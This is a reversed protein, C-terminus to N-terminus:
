DDLLPSVIPLSSPLMGGEIDFSNDTLMSRHAYNWLCIRYCALIDTNMSRLTHGVYTYATAALFVRPGNSWSGLYTHIQDTFPDFRAFFFFTKSEDRRAKAGEDEGGRRAKAKM